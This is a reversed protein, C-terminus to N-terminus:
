FGDLHIMLCIPSSYFTECKSLLAVISKCFRIEICANSNLIKNPYFVKIRGKLSVVKCNNLLYISALGKLAIETVHCRRGAVLREGRNDGAGM